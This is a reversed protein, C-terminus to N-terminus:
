KKSRPSKSFVGAMKHTVSSGLQKLKSSSGQRELARTEQKNQKEMADMAELSALLQENAAIKAEREEATGAKETWKDLEMTKTKVEVELTMRTLLEMVPEEGEIIALQVEPLDAAQPFEDVHAQVRAMASAKLGVYTDHLSEEAALLALSHRGELAVADFLTKFLAFEAKVKERLHAIIMEKNAVFMETAVEKAEEQLGKRAAARDHESSSSVGKLATDYHAVGKHMQGLLQKRLPGAAMPFDSTLKSSMSRILEISEQAVKEINEREMGELPSPLSVCKKNNLSDVIQKFVSTIRAGTTPHGAIRHPEQLQESMVQLMEKCQQKFRPCVDRDGLAGRKLVDPTAPQDMLWVRVSAFNDLLLTRVDNRERVAAAKGDKSADRLNRRPVKELTFLQNYVADSDSDFTYDRFVIHLHGFLKEDEEGGDLQVYEAARALVSLQELIRNVVPAGKHNFILVRTTLLLPIALITDYMVDKDGQGEADVFAVAECVSGEPLPEEGDSGCSGLSMRDLADVSGFESGASEMSGMRDRYSSSRSSLLPADDSGRERDVKAAMLEWDLVFSSIDAGQTCPAATNAVKFLGNMGALCNMLFSKGTRASGLIVVMNVLKGKLARLVNLGKLGVKINGSEQSIEFLKHRGISKGKSLYHAHSYFLESGVQSQLRM